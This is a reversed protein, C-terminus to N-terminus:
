GCEMSPRYSAAPVVTAGGDPFPDAADDDIFYPVSVPDGSGGADSLLLTKAGTPGVLLMDLDDPFTSTLRFSVTIKTVRGRMGTVNITSPYVAAGPLGPNTGAANSARDAPAIAALNSFVERMGHPRQTVATGIAQNALLVIAITAPFIAVVHTRVSSM